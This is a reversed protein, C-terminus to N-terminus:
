LKICVEEISKALNSSSLSLLKSPDAAYESRIMTIMGEVHDKTTNCRLM